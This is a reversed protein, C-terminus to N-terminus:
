KTPALWPLFRATFEIVPSAAMLRALFTSVATVVTLAGALWAVVEPGIVAGLHEIALPIAVALVALASLLVQIATRIAAQWPFRAQTSAQPEWAAMRVNHAATERAMKAGWDGHTLDDTM